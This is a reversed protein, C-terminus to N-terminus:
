LCLLILSLLFMLWSMPAVKRQLIQAYIQQLGGLVLIGGFVYMLITIFQSPLLILLLGLLITAIGVVPFFTRFSSGAAQPFFFGITPVLGSIVFIAGIIQVTMVTMNDPRWVLLGGIIIACISRIILM